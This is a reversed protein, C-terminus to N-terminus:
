IKGQRRAAAFARREHRNGTEMANHEKADPVFDIERNSPITYSLTTKGRLNTVALDGMGIIDMGILVQPRQDPKLNENILKAETVRVHTVVVHDPLAINVLYVNAMSKGDAHYVEAVNIPKLGFDDVVQRTIVSNTAGTDWIAVYENIKLQEAKAEEQTAPLSIGVPTKLVRVLGSYRFTFARRM